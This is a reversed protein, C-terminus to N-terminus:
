QENLDGPRPKYDPRFHDDVIRDSDDTVTHRVITEGTDKNRYIMQTSSGHQRAGKRSAKESHASVAEWSNPDREFDAIKEKVTRV